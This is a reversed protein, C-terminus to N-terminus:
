ATPYHDDVIMVKNHAIGPVKDVLTLIGHHIVTNVQSGKSTLQSRDVLIKVNVGRQHATILAAAIEPSTFAYAQVLIQKEASHITAIVLDTCKGHPSFRVQIEGSCALHGIYSNQLGQFTASGYGVSIGLIFTWLLIITYWKNLSSKRRKQKDLHKTNKIFPVDIGLDSAAHMGLKRKTAKCSAM